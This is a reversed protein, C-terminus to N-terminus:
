EKISGNIATFGSQTIELARQISWFFVCPSNCSVSVRGRHRPRCYVGVPSAEFKWLPYPIRDDM